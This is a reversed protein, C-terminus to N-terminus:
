AALTAFPQDFEALVPIGFDREMDDRCRLRRHYFLEYCLPGLVGLLAGLLAGLIVILPKNPKDAEIPPSARSVFSSSAFLIQDHNDLARKYVTQASELELQLKAGEDQLNRIKMVKGRQEAIARQLKEELQRSTSMESSNNSSFTQIEQTLSRRTAAIQSKLELVRPHQSGLTAGVQALQAQLTALQNKLNQVLNSGMVNNSVAEDGSGKAEAQRRQNQALLLQQELAALGQTDADGNQAPAAIDTIGSRQRFESVANQATTVKAKLDALQASYQQARGGGPNSTRQQEGVQYADVVSNAILAAKNRDKSSATVYLLQIGKGQEIELNKRLQTEVWDRLTGPRSTSYGRTFEPDATLGLKDIVSLLVDRSQILAIQTLMYSTFLEAPGQRAGENAEYNVLVTAQATYSKPLTLALIVAVFTCALAILMFQRRYAMLISSVQKMTIGSQVYQLPLVPLPPADTAGSSLIPM